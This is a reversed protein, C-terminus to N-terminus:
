GLPSHKFRLRFLRIPCSKEQLRLVEVIKILGLREHKGKQTARVVGHYLQDRLASRSFCAGTRSAHRPDYLREARSPRFASRTGFVLGGCIPASQPCRVPNPLSIVLFRWRISHVM